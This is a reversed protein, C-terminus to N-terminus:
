RLKEANGFYNGKQKGEGKSSLGLLWTKMKKRPNQGAFNSFKIAKQEVDLGEFKCSDLFKQLLNPYQRKVENSKLAIKFKSYSSLTSTALSDTTTTPASMM